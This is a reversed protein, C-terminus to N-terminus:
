PGGNEKAEPLAFDSGKLDTKEPFLWPFLLLPERLSSCNEAQSKLTLTGKSGYRFRFILALSLLCSDTESPQNLGFNRVDGGTMAGTNVSGRLVAVQWCNLYSHCM